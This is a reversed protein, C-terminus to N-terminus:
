IEVCFEEINFHQSNKNFKIQIDSNIQLIDVYSHKYLELVALFNVVISRVDNNKNIIESFSISKHDKIFIYIKKVYDIVLLPKDAINQANLLFNESNVISDLAYISLKYIDVDKLLKSSFGLNKFDHLYPRPHLKKQLNLRHELAYSADKYKKYNLLRETLIDLADNENLSDIDDIEKDNNISLLMDAKIKLLTSAVVIFDSTIDINTKNIDKVTDLYQDIVSSISIQKIDLKQKSVLHLLLDFPGSFNELKVKFKAM